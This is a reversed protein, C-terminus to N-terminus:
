GMVTGLRGPEPSGADDQGLPPRPGGRRRSRTSSAVTDMDKHAVTTVVPYGLVTSTSLGFGRGGERGRWAMLVRGALPDQGARWGWSELTCGAGGRELAYGQGQGQGVPLSHTPGAGVEGCPDPM